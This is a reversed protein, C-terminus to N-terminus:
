RLVQRAPSRVQRFVAMPQSMLRKQPPRETESRGASGGVGVHGSLYSIYFVIIQEESYRKKM